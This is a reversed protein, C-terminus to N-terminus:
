IRSLGESVLDQNHVETGGHTSWLPYASLIEQINVEFDGHTSWPRYSSMIEPNSTESDNETNRVQTNSTVEVGNQNNGEASDSTNFMPYNPVIEHSTEELGNNAGHSLFHSIMEEITVVKLQYHSNAHGSVM